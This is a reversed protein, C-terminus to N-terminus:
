GTSCQERIKRDYADGHVKIPPATGATTLDDLCAAVQREAGPVHVHNMRACRGDPRRPLPM